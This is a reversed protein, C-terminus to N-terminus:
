RRWTPPSLSLLSGCKKLAAEIQGLPFQYPRLRIRFEPSSTFTKTVIGGVGPRCESRQSETLVLELRPRVPSRFTLGAVTVSLDPTRSDKSKAM